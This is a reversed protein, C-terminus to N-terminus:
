WSVVHAVDFDEQLWDYNSNPNTAATAVVRVPNEVGQEVAVFIANDAYRDRSSQYVAPGWAIVWAGIYPEWASFAQLIKNAVGAGLEAVTGNQSSAANSLMSISFVQQWTDFGAM